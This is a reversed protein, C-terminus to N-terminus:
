SGRKDGGGEGKEKEDRFHLAGQIKMVESNCVCLLTKEHSQSTRSFMMIETEMWNRVFSM